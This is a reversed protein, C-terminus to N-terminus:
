GSQNKTRVHKIYLQLGAFLSNLYEIDANIVDCHRCTIIERIKGNLMKNRLMQYQDSNWISHITDEKVNGLKNQIEYDLCCFTMDGNWAITINDWPTICVINSNYRNARERIEVGGGWNHLVYAEIHDVRDLYENLFEKVKNKDDMKYSTRINICTNYEGEDRIDILRDIHEKIDDYQLGSRLSEFGHRDYGDFSIWITDIGADLLNKINRDSLLQGNTYIVTNEIGQKKAYTIKNPLDKDLLPEGFNQLHVEAVGLYACEDIIKKYLTSDMFGKSRKMEKHPCISCSANCYNTSEIRVVRPVDINRLLISLSYRYLPNILPLSFLRSTYRNYLINVIKM